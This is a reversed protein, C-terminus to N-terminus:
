KIGAGGCSLSSVAENHGLTVSFSSPGWIQDLNKFIELWITMLEPSRGLPFIYIIWMHLSAMSLWYHSSVARADLRVKWTERSRGTIKVKTVLPCLWCHPQCNIKQSFSPVVSQATGPSPKCGVEVRPGLDNWGLLWPSTKWSEECENEEGHCMCLSWNINADIKKKKKAYHRM